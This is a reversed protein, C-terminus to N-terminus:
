NTWHIDKLYITPGMVVVIKSLGNDNYVPYATEWSFSRKPSNYQVFIKGTDNMGINWFADKSEQYYGLIRM